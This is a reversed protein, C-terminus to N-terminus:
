YWYLTTLFEKDPSCIVIHQKSAEYVVSRYEIQKEKLKAELEKIIEQEGGREYDDLLICFSDSLNDVMEVIQPRSYHESGYPGDVLILDYKNSQTTTHLDKYTLTECGKYDITELEKKIINTKYAASMESNFFDIWEQNHEITCVRVDPYANMYQYLMKSSQGLGFEIINKPKTDNLIRYLTYLVGYDVAWGGPSFNPNKLWDSHMITNQFLLAKLSERQMQLIQEQQTKIIVIQKEIKKIGLCKRVWNKLKQIM